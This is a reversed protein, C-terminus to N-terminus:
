SQPSSDIPLAKGFRVGSVDIETDYCLMEVGLARAADFAAAFADRNATSSFRWTVGNWDHTIDADGAVHQGQTFYAVVDSGDVAIGDNSYIPPTNAYAASGLALAIPLSATATLFQRRTPM